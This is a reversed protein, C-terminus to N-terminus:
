MAGPRRLYVIAAAVTAVLVIGFIWAWFVNAPAPQGPQRVVPLGVAGGLGLATM